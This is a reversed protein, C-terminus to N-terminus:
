QETNFKGFYITDRDDLIRRARLEIARLFRAVQGTPHNRLDAIMASEIDTSEARGQAFEQLQRRTFRSADAEPRTKSSRRVSETRWYSSGREGLM